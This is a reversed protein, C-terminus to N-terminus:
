QTDTLIHCKQLIRATRMAIRRLPQNGKRLFDDANLATVVLLAAIVMFTYVLNGQRLLSM